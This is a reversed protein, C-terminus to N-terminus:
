QKSNAKIFDTANIIEMGNREYHKVTGYGETKCNVATDEGFTHWRTRHNSYMLISKVKNFQIASTCKIAFNGGKVDQAMLSHFNIIAQM